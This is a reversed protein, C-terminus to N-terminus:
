GQPRAPANAQVLTRHAACTQWGRLIELVPLYYRRLKSKKRL